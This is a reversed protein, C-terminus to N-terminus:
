LVRCRVRLRIIVDDQREKVYFTIMRSEKGHERRFLKEFEDGGFLAALEPTIADDKELTFHGRKKPHSRFVTWKSYQDLFGSGDRRGGSLSLFSNVLVM